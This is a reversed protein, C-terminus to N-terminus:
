VRRLRVYCQGHSLFCCNYHQLLDLNNSAALESNLSFEHPLIWLVVKVNSGSLGSLLIASVSLSWTGLSPYLSTRACIVTDVKRFLRTNRGFCKNHILTFGTFFLRQFVHGMSANQPMIRHRMLSLTNANKVNTLCCRFSRIKSCTHMRVNLCFHFPWFLMPSDHSHVQIHCCRTCSIGDWCLIM